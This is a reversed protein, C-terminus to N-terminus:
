KPIRTPSVGNDTSGGQIPRMGFTVASPETDRVQWTVIPTNPFLCYLSLFLSIGRRVCSRKKYVFPFTCSKGPPGTTLAQCQWHLPMSEFGPQPLEEHWTPWGFFSIYLCCVFTCTERTAWHNLIQHCHLLHPDPLDGPSPFLLGNRHEQRSFGHISSSPPNCDMPDYLTLCSQAVGVPLM